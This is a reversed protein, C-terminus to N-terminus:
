SGETANPKVGKLLQQTAQSRKKSLTMEKMIRHRENSTRADLYKGMKQEKMQQKLYVSANHHRTKGSKNTQRQSM